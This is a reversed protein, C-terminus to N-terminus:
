GQGIKTILIVFIRQERGTFFFKRGMRDGKADERCFIIEEYEKFM